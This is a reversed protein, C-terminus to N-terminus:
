LTDSWKVVNRLSPNIYKQFGAPLFEEVTVCEHNLKGFHVSNYNFCEGFHECVKLVSLFQSIDFWAVWKFLKEHNHNVPKEWRKLPKRQLFAINRLLGHKEESVRMMVKLRIHWVFVVRQLLKIKLRSFWKRASEGNMIKWISSKSWLQQLVEKGAETLNEWNLWISLLYVKPFSLSKRLQKTKLVKKKRWRLPYFGHNLPVTKTKISGPPTFPILILNLSPLQDLRTCPLLAKDLCKQQGGNKMFSQTKHSYAMVWRTDARQGTCSPISIPRHLGWKHPGPVIDWSTKATESIGPKWIAKGHIMQYRLRKKKIDRKSKCPSKTEGCDCLLHFCLIALWTSCIVIKKELGWTRLLIPFHPTWAM